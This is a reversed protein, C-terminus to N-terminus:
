WAPRAQSPTFPESQSRRARAQQMADDTSTVIKQYQQDLRNRPLHHRDRALDDM